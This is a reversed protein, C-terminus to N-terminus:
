LVNIFLFFSGEWGPFVWKVRTLHDRIASRARLFETVFWLFIPSPRVYVSWNLWGAALGRVTRVGVFLFWHRCFTCRPILYAVSAAWRTCTNISWPWSQSVFKMPAESLTNLRSAPHQTSPPALAIGVRVPVLMRNSGGLGFRASNIVLLQNARSPCLRGLPHLWHIWHIWSWM